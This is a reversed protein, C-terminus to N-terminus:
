DYDRPAGSVTLEYSQLGLYGMVAQCNAEVSVTINRGTIESDRRDSGSAYGSMKVDFSTNFNYNDVSLEIEDFTTGTEAM